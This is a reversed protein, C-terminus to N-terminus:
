QCCTNETLSHGRSVVKLLFSQM